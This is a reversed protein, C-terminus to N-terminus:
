EQGDFVTRQEFIVAIREAIIRVVQPKVACARRKTKAGNQHKPFVRLEHEATIDSGAVIATYKFRQFFRDPAQVM